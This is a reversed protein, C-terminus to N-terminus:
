LGTDSRKTMASVNSFHKKWVDDVVHMVAHTCLVVSCGGIKYVKYDGSM